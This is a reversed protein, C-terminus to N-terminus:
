IHLNNLVVILVFIKKCFCTIPVGTAVVHAYPTLSLINDFQPFGSQYRRLTQFLFLFFNCSERNRIICNSFFIVFIIYSRLTESHFLHIRHRLSEGNFLLNRLFPNVSSLLGSTNQNLFSFQFVVFFLLSLLRNHLM